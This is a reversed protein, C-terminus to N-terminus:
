VGFVFGFAYGSLRDATNEVSDQAKREYSLELQRMVNATMTRSLGRAAVVDVMAREVFRTRGDVFVLYPADPAAAAYRVERGGRRVLRLSERLRGTRQPAAAKLKRRFERRIAPESMRVGVRVADQVEDPSLRRLFRVPINSM